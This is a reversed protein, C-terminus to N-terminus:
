KKKHVPLSQTIQNQLTLKIKNFEHKKFFIIPVFIPTTLSALIAVAGVAAVMFMLVACTAVVVPIVVAVAVTARIGLGAAELIDKTFYKTRLRIVDTKTIPGRSMIDALDSRLGEELVGNQRIEEVLKLALNRQPESANNLENSLSRDIVGNKYFLGSVEKIQTVTAKKLDLRNDQNEDDIEIDGNDDINALRVFDEGDNWYYVRQPRKTKSDYIITANEAKIEAKRLRHDDNRAVASEQRPQNNLQHIIHAETLKKSAEKIRKKDTFQWWSPSKKEVLQNNERFEYRKVNNNTDLIFAENNNSLYHIFLPNNNTPQAPKNVHTNPEQKRSANMDILIRDKFKEQLKQRIQEQTGETSDIIMAMM